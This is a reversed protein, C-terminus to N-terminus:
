KVEELRISKSDIINGVQDVIMSIDYTKGDNGKIKSFALTKPKQRAILLTFGHENKWIMNKVTTFEAYTKESSWHFVNKSSTNLYEPEFHKNVDTYQWVRFVIEDDRLDPPQNGLVYEIPMFEASKLKNLHETMNTM